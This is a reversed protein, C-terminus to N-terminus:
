TDVILAPIYSYDRTDLLYPYGIGYEWYLNINQLAPNVSAVEQWLWYDDMEIELRLKPNNIVDDWAVIKGDDVRILVHNNIASEPNDDLFHSLHKVEAWSPNKFGILRRLDSIPSQLPIALVKAADLKSLIKQYTDDLYFYNTPVLYQYEKNDYIFGTGTLELTSLGRLGICDMLQPLFIDRNHKPVSSCDWSFAGLFNNKQSSHKIPVHMLTYKSLYFNSLLPLIQSTYGFHKFTGHSISGFKFVKPILFSDSSVGIFKAVCQILPLQAAIHINQPFCFACLEDLLNTFRRSWFYYEAAPILALFSSVHKDPHAFKFFDLQKPTSQILKM